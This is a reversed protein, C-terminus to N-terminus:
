FSFSGLINGMVLFVFFVLFPSLYILYIGGIVLLKAFRPIGNHRQFYLMFAPGFYHFSKSIQGYCFRSALGLSVSDFLNYCFVNYRWQLLIYSFTQSVYLYCNVSIAWKYPLVSKGALFSSIKFRPLM